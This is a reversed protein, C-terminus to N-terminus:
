KNSIELLFFMSSDFHLAFTQRKEGERQSPFLLDRNLEAQSSM